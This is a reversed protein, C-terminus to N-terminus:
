HATPLSFTVATELMEVHLRLSHSDEIIETETESIQFFIKLLHNIELAMLM